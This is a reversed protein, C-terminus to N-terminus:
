CAKHDIGSIPLFALSVIKFAGRWERIKARLRIEPESRNFFDLCSSGSANRTQDSDIAWEVPDLGFSHLSAISQGIAETSCLKPTHIPTNYKSTTGQASM